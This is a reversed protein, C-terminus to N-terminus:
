SPPEKSWAILIDGLVRAFDKTLLVQAWHGGDAPTQDFRLAGAEFSVIGVDSAWTTKEHPAKAEPQERFLELALKRMERSDDGEGLSSEIVEAGRELLAVIQMLRKNDLKM